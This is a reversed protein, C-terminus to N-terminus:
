LDITTSGKSAPERMGKRISDRMGPISLLYLTEEISRWDDESVLVANGRKGTILVPDQGGQLREILTYLSARAKTASLSTM